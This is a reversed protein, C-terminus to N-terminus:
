RRRAMAEGLGALAAKLRPDDIDKLRLDLREREPEPLPPPEGPTKPRPPLPRQHIRVDAIAPYGYFGNVRQVIQPTLHTLQMALTGNPVRLHLTGETRKGRPFQIREPASNRALFSGGVISEWHFCIDGEGLGRRGLLPRMLKRELEDLSVAHGRRQASPRVGAGGAATPGARRGPPEKRASDDM